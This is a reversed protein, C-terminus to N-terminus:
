LRTGGPPPACEVELKHEKGVLVAKKAAPISNGVKWREFPVQSQITREAGNPYKVKFQYMTCTM